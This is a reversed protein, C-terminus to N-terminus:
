NKSESTFISNQPPYLMEFNLVENQVKILIFDIYDFQNPNIEYECPSIEIFENKENFYSLRM